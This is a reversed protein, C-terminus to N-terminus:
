TDPSARSARTTVIGDAPSLKQLSAPGNPVRLKHVRYSGGLGKPVEIFDHLPQECVSQTINYFGPAQPKLKVFAKNAKYNWHGNCWPPLSNIPVETNGGQNTTGRLTVSYSKPM